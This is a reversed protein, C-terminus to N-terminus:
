DNFKVYLGFFDGVPVSWQQVPFWEPLGTCTWELSYNRGQLAEHIKETLLKPTYFTATVYFPNKGFMQQVRRRLVKPSNRNMMGFAIGHRGVRAAERIVKVPDRYYEFTTIFAVADFTDDKFPMYHSDANVLDGKFLHVAQGLMFPSIDGGTANIGIEHWWRTFRTTGCGFELLEKVRPDKGLLQAMVKKQWVEARKYRGEYWQEYTDTHERNFFWEKRGQWNALSGTMLGFDGHQKLEM